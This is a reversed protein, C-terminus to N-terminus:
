SVGDPAVPERSARVTLKDAFQTRKQPDGRVEWFNGSDPGTTQKLVDGTRVSTSSPMHILDLTFLNDQEDYVFGEPAKVSEGTQFRCLVGTSAAAWTYTPRGQADLAENKRWITCRHPYRVGSPPLQPM